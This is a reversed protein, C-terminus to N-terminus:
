KSFGRLIKSRDEFDDKKKKKKSTKKKTTAKKKTKTKSKTSKKSSKVNKPKSQKPKKKTPEQKKPEEEEEDGEFKFDDDLISLDDEESLEDEISKKKSKTEEESEDTKSDEKDREQRRQENEYQIQKRKQADHGQYVSRSIPTPAGLQGPAGQGPQPQGAIIQTGDELCEYIVNNKKRFIYIDGEDEVLTSKDRFFLKRENSGMVGVSIAKISRFYTGM